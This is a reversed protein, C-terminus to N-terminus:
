LHKIITALRRYKGCVVAHDSYRFNSMKYGRVKIRPYGELNPMIIDSYVPFLDPSLAGGQRVGHKMKKKSHASTRM